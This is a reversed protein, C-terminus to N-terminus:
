LIKSAIILFSGSLNDQGKGIEVLATAGYIPTKNFAYVGAILTILLTITSILAKKDWLTKFLQKLDIEDEQYYNQEPLNTQM